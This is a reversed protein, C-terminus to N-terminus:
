FRMTGYDANVASGARGGITFLSPIPVALAVPSRPRHLDPTFLSGARDVHPSSAKSWTALLEDMADEHLTLALWTEAISVTLDRYVPGCGEVASLCEAANMSYTQADNL